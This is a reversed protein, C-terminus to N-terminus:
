CRIDFAVASQHPEILDAGKAGEGRIPDDDIPQYGRMTTPDEVRSAVTEDGIEGAGNIGHLTSDRHLVGYGLLISISRDALLHPKPDADVDAVDNNLAVIEEAIGDIDRSAQFSQRLRASNADRTYHPILDACLQRTM